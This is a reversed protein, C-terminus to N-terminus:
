KKVGIRKEIIQDKTWNVFEGLRAPKNAEMQLRKKRAIELQKRKAEQSAYQVMECIRKVEADVDIGEEKLDVIIDERSLEESEGLADTLTDLFSIINDKDKTGM